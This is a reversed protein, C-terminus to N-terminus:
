GLLLKVTTTVAPPVEEERGENVETVAGAPIVVVADKGSLM